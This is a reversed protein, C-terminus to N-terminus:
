HHTWIMRQIINFVKTAIYQALKRGIFILETRYLKTFLMIKLSSFYSMTPLKKDIIWFCTNQHATDPLISLKSDGGIYDQTPSFCPHTRLESSNLKYKDSTGWIKSSERSGTDIFRVSYTRHPTKRCLWSEWPIQRCGRFRGTGYFSGTSIFRWFSTWQFRSPSYVSM